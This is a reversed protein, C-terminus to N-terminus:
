PILKRFRNLAKAEGPGPIYTTPDLALDVGTGLVKNLPELNPDLKADPNNTMDTAKTLIKGTIDSGEVEKEPNTKIGILEAVGRRIPENFYQDYDGLIAGFKRFQKKLNTPDSGEIAEEAILKATQSPKKFTNKIGATLREGTGMSTLKRAESQQALKQIILERNSNANHLMARDFADQSLENTARRRILEQAEPNIFFGAHKIDDVKTFPNQLSEPLIREQSKLLTEAVNEQPDKIHIVQGYDSKPTDIIHVKGLNESKKPLDLKMNRPAAVSEEKLKVGQGLKRNATGITDVSEALQGVKELTQLMEPNDKMKAFAEMNRAAKAEQALKKQSGLLESLVAPDELVKLFGELTKTNPTIPM